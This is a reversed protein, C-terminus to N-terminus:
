KLFKDEALIPASLNTIACIIIIIDDIYHVLNWQLKGGLIKFIKLRQNTREIHVRASAIEKTFMAEGEDFQAKGRLFPPRYLKIEYMKCIDEILFGKDVMVASGKELKKILESGQFIIKDSARGGYAKSVFTVLGAPSVGTMFKVTLAGKYHSYFRIRCCLCKPTQIFIETCDLVIQTDQFKEFCIPMNQSNEIKSPFVIVSKLITSLLKIMEIFYIRCLVSSIGYLVGLITYSLDCKLKTFTLSVRDKVCLKHIRVDKYIIAISACIEDLLIFSNLGTLSTLAKETQIFHSLTLKSPTNVQIQFDRFTKPESNQSETQILTLLADAAQLEETTPVTDINEHCNDETVPDTAPIDRLEKMQNRISLRVGRNSPALEQVSGHVPNPLCMTPIVNKKLNRRQRITFFDNETFHLSCVKMFESINKGIRLKTKWIYRRNVIEWVGLKTQIRVTDNVNPFKHFSIDPTRRKLSNCGPVCCFTNAM